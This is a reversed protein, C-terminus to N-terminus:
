KSSVLIFIVISEVSGPQEVIRDIYTQINDRRYILVSQESSACILFKGHKMSELGHLEEDVSDSKAYLKHPSDFGQRIDHIAITGDLASAIINTHEEDFLLGTIAESQDHADFICESSRLDWVKVMGDDDGSILLTDNAFHVRSIPSPHAKKILHVVKGSADTFALRKDEGCSAL